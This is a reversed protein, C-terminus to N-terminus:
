CVEEEVKKGENKWGGEGGRHVGKDERGESVDEAVDGEHGGSKADGAPKVARGLYGLLVGGDGLLDELPGENHDEDDVEEEDEGSDGQGGDEGGGEAVEDVRGKELVERVDLRQRSGRDPGEDRNSDRM